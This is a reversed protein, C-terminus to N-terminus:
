IQQIVERYVVFLWTNKENRLYNCKNLFFLPEIRSLVDERRANRPKLLAGLRHTKSTRFIRKPYSDIKPDVFFIVVELTTEVCRVLSCVSFLGINLTPDM